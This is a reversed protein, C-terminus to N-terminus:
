PEPFTDCCLSAWGPSAAGSSEPGLAACVLVFGERAMGFKMDAVCLLLCCAPGPSVAAVDPALLPLRLLGSEARLGATDADWSCCMSLWNMWSAPRRSERLPCLIRALMEPLLLTVSSLLTSCTRAGRCAPCACGARPLLGQVGRVWCSTCCVRAVRRSARLLSLMCTQLSVCRTGQHM